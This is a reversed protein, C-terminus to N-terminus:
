YHHPIANTSARYMFERASNPVAWEKRAVTALHLNAPFSNSVLQM